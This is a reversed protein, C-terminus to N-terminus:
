QIAGVVSYMPQMMSIAFFGVVIGIVVMLFPEIITSMNKTNESVESEFFLALRKLIDSVAGTEEGVAIMQTVLPPYLHPYKELTQSLPKGKQVEDIAVKLSEVYYHNPIAKSVIELSKIIPVGGELLSSMTRAFRASNIKKTLAGILPTKLFITDATNKGVGTRFFLILGYIFAAIIGFFLYWYNAGFEAVAILIRTTIPLEVGMEKFTTALTPVVFLMMIVGIISMVVLIVAPYTFAGKVKRKLDYEKKLQKSLLKLIDELNGAVEASRIMNVYLDGFTEVHMELADSFPRGKQIESNIALLISKLKANTTQKALTEIARSLSLGAGVMVSLNRSFIMKEAPKVGRRFQFFKLFNVARKSIDATKSVEEAPKSSILFINDQRLIRALEFEDKAEMQGKKEEGGASRATYNYSSM